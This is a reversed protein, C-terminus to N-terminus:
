SESDEKEDDGLESIEKLRCIAKYNVSNEVVNGEADLIGVVEGTLLELAEDVTNV